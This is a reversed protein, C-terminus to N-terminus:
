VTWTNPNPIPQGSGVRALGRLNRWAFWVVLALLAFGASRGLLVALTLGYLVVLLATRAAYTYHTALAPGVRRRMTLAMVASAIPLPTIVFGGLNLWYCLQANRSGPEFWGPENAFEGQRFRDGTPDAEMPHTEGANRSAPAAIREEELPRTASASADAPDGPAADRGLPPPANADAREVSGEPLTARQFEEDAASQFPDRESM